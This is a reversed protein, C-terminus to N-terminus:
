KEEGQSAPTTPKRRAICTACTARDNSGPHFAANAPVDRECLTWLLRVNRHVDDGECIHTFGQKDTWFISRNNITMFTM